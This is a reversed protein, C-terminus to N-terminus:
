PSAGFVTSPRFSTVVFNDSNMKNLAQEADWKASAYATVPNKQSHDEDLEKNLKSVGYM